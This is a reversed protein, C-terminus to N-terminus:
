ELEGLTKLNQQESPQGYFKTTKRLVSMRFPQCALVLLDARLRFLARFIEAQSHYATMTHAEVHITKMMTWFMHCRELMLSTSFIRYTRM